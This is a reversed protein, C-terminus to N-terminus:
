VRLFQIAAAPFHYESFSFCFFLTRGGGMGGFANVQPVRSLLLYQGQKVSVCVGVRFTLFRACACAHVTVADSRRGADADANAGEDQAGYGQRRPRCLSSILVVSWLVFLNLPPCSGTNRGRDFFAPFIQRRMGQAESYKYVCRDLCSLEGNALSEDNFKTVCKTACVNRVSSAGRSAAPFKSRNTTFVRIFRLAFGRHM